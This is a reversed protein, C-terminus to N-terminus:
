LWRDLWDFSKRGGFQHGGPLTDKALRDPVDLLNYVRLLDGFAEETAEAPFIQDDAGHEILLPKPAILGAIDSMEAYQLIGPVYNCECHQIPMISARFSNFYGSVVAVTIRDDLASAYMTAMGGGSSGLCGLGAAMEEPQSRIYDITRKIDWVWLGLATKGMMIANWGLARCSKASRPHGSKGRNNMGPELEMREGFGRQEPVFVMYGRQALQRAYDANKARLHALDEQPEAGSTPQGLLHAVGGTGHGHMAIVPRYPPEVGRPVLVHCPIYLGPETQFAVKEQRYGEV